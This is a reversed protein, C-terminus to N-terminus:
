INNFKRSHMNSLNSHQLDMRVELMKWCVMPFDLQQILDPFAVLEEHQSEEVSFHRVLLKVSKGFVSSDSTVEGFHSKEASFQDGM